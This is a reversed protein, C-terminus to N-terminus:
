CSCNIIDMSCSSHAICLVVLWTTKSFMRKLFPHRHRFLPRMLSTILMCLVSSVTRSKSVFHRHRIHLNVRMYWEQRTSPLSSTMLSMVNRRLYSNSEYSVTNSGLFWTLKMVSVEIQLYFRPYTAACRM